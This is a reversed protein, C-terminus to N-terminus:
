ANKNILTRLFGQIGPSETVDKYASLRSFVEAAALHFGAPLGAESFTAAIEEMEGTFRWAKNANGTVRQITQQSFEAGWQSQLYDRVGEQEAVALIAALLATSGKTYAAFTMKLASASGIHENLETVNLISGKFLSAVDGTHTGSLYLRTNSHKHWAPGGIIGGDVCVIDSSNLQKAISRVRGPSIANAELYIGQFENELAADVVENAFQPPCISLVIDASDFIDRVSEVATLDAREARLLTDHSRQPNHWLVNHGNRTANAGISAGMAGPSFLAITTM